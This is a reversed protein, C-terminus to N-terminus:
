ATKPVRKIVVATLDDMQRTGSAFHKVASYLEAIIEEPGLHCSRRIVQEMRESGFENGSADEWEFFGDTALVILDGENLHLLLPEASNLEPLLGLPITQAGFQEFTDRASSYVFLPGHGASLLEIKGEDNSCVAAVFTAFRGSPLDEGFFRNIHQMAHVVDAHTDFSSRAYARCVSALLAPGIGHGTVDALTVVMRGDRLPKWDFYDGGTADAPLNWGSIELGDMRPRIRPLLSQQISRAIELDHEVQKLQREVEAEHLAANVHRRVESSVMGAIFGSALLVAAYFIVATEAATHMRLEHLNLRWGLYYASALFGCASVFGLAQSILPNLRLVSLMILPFLALVWPTAVARYDVALATSSFHAVGLLPVIVEALVNLWLLWNPLDNNTALAKGIEHLTWLEYAVTALLFVAGWPSMHSGFIIIRAAIAVAFVLLFVTVGYIRRRESELLAKRFAQSDVQFGNMSGAGATRFLNDLPNESTQNYQDL